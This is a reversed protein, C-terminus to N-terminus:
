HGGFAESAKMTRDIYVANWAKTSTGDAQRKIGHLTVTIVYNHFKIWPVHIKAGLSTNKGMDDLHSSVRSCLLISPFAM